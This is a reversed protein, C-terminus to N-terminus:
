DPVEVNSLCLGSMIKFGVGLMPKAVLGGSTTPTPTPGSTSVSKLAAEIQSPSMTGTLGSLRRAENAFGILRSEEILWLTDAM